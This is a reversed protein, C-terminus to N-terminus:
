RALKRAIPQSAEQRRIRSELYSCMEQWPIATGSAIINAYRTEAVADFEARQAEGATSTKSNNPLSIPTTTM